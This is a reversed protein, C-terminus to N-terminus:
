IVKKIQEFLQELTGTNMIVSDGPSIPLGAETIHSDKNSQDTEPRVVHVITAGMARLTDIEHVQRVDPIIYYDYGSYFNDLYNEAFLKVWYMCDLKNVVVDTGLTQMLRRISWEEVNNNLVSSIADQVKSDYKSHRFNFVEHLVEISECLIDFVDENNVPLIMERDIGQGEWDEGRLEYLENMHTRQWAIYLAYKIPMALQWKLTKYHENIYDATTDKGSRKKGVIVLLKM